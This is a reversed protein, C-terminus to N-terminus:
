DSAHLAIRNGESDLFLAMYGIEPAIQTRPKLITGGAREIRDLVDQISPNANLYLVVGNDRPEYNAEKLLAGGTKGTAPDNPFVFMEISDKTNFPMPSLEIEFIAEYFGRARVMDTVPIEFWNIKNSTREM